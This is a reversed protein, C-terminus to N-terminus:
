EEDEGAVTASSELYEKARRQQTEEFTLGTATHVAKEGTLTRFREVTVDVYKPDLEMLHGRRGTKEAAMLTTGSGGFCDLVIAGRKSCDLIADGIM